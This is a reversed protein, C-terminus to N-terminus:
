SALFYGCIAATSDVDQINESAHADGEWFCAGNTDGDFYTGSASAKEILVSDVFATGTASAATSELILSVRIKTTTAPSTRNDNDSTTFESNTSTVEVNHTAQVVDSADLFELRL